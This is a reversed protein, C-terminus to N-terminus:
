KQQEDSRVYVVLENISCNLYYCLKCLLVSDIRQFKNQCYRNFNPRSIDMDKCIKNKSINKEKLIEEIRLQLEGYKM